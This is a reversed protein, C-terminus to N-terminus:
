QMSRVKGSGVTRKSSHGGVPLSVITKERSDHSTSPSFLSGFKMKEPMYALRVTGVPGNRQKTIIIEAIGKDKSDPRYYEDRYMMMTVDADQEINGSERLDSSIPRKDTREEVKRSLQCLAVVACGLARAMLKMTKTIEGVDQDTRDHKESSSMLGLYDVVIVGLPQDSERNIEEARQRIQAVTQLQEEISLPADAVKGVADMLADFDDNTLRKPRTIHTATVGSLSSLIRNAIQTDGMELSVFMAPIKLAVACHEAINLGFMTKGMSPRAGVIILDGPQLGGTMENLDGWPTAIGTIDSELERLEEIRVLSRMAVSAFRSDKKKVFLRAKQDEIQRILASNFPDKELKRSLSKVNRSVSSDLVIRIHGDIDDASSAQSTILEISALPDAVKTGELRRALSLKEVRGNDDLEDGIAHFVTRAWGPRFDAILLQACIKRYYNESLIAAGLLAQETADLSKSVESQDM